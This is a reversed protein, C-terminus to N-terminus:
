IYRFLAHMAPSRTLIHTFCEPQRLHPAQILEQLRHNEVRLARQQLARTIVALLRSFDVPKVLYDFAGAKVCRVATDIQDTATVVIVPLEPQTAIISGLLAEGPIHPMVLDLLVTSVAHTKLLGEADRPDNCLLAEGFDEMRLVRGLSQLMAQDDDIVLIMPTRIDRESEVSM